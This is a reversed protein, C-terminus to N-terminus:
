NLQVSEVAENSWKRAFFSGLGIMLLLTGISWSIVLLPKEMILPAMVVIYQVSFMLNLKTAATM